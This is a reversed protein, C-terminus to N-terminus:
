SIAELAEKNDRAARRLMRKFQIRTDDETM